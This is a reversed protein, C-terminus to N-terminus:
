MVLGSYRSSHAMADFLIAKAAESVPTWKARVTRSIDVVKIVAKTNVPASDESSTNICKDCSDNPVQVFM